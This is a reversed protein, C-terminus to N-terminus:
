KASAQGRVQAYLEVNSSFDTTHILGLSQHQSYDYKLKSVKCSDHCGTFATLYLEQRGSFRVPLTDLDM